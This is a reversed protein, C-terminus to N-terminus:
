PKENCKMPESLPVFHLRGFEGNQFVLHVWRGIEAAVAGRQLRGHPSRYIWSSGNGCDKGCDKGCHSM